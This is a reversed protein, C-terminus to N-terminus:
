FSATRRHERANSVAREKDNSDSDNKEGDDDNTM